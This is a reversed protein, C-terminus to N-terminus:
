EPEAEEPMETGLLVEPIIWVIAGMLGLGLAATNRIPQLDTTGEELPFWGFEPVGIRGPPIAFMALGALLFVVGVLLHRWYIERNKLLAKM